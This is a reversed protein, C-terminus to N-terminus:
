SPGAAVPRGGLGGALMVPPWWSAIPASWGAVRDALPEDRWLPLLRVPGGGVLDLPDLYVEGRRWGWHLCPRPLCHSGTRDLLGLADGAAVRDGVRVRTLVPEYTTRTAGHDVVVVGRGALVAAFTIRGARAARVVQGPVGALDVGRHGAGWPSEPPDFGVLVDPEPVLPWVGTPDTRDGSPQAAAPAAVVALALVAAVLRLCTSM